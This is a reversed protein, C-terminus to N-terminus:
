VLLEYYIYEGYIYIIFEQRCKFLIECVLCIVIIICFEPLYIHYPLTRMFTGEGM